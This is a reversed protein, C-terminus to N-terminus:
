QLWQNRENILSHWEDRLEERQETGTVSADLHETIDFQAVPVIPGDSHCLFDTRIIQYARCLSQLAEDAEAFTFRFNPNNLAQRSTADAAHAIFKNRLDRLRGIAPVNLLDDLGSFRAAEILDTRQRSGAPIGSLTDFIPHLRVSTFLDNPVFTPSGLTMGRASPSPITDPDYYRNDCCVYNERTFLARQNTLESILRKLSVVGRTVNKEPPDTLRGVGLIMATVYGSRLAEHLLTNNLATQRGDPTSTAAKVLLRFVADQWVLSSLQASISHETDRELLDLWKSRQTRFEVFSARDHVDCQDAPIRYDPSLAATM